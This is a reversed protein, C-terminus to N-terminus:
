FVQSDFALGIPFTLSKGKASITVAPVPDGSATLQTPKFEVITHGESNSVWLNGAPDVAVENPGKLSPPTKLDSTIQVAPTGGSKLETSKYETLTNMTFSTVWLDGAATFAMGDLPAATVTVAPTKKGSSALQAPTYETITGTNASWLDGSADFALAEPQLKGNSTVDIAPKVNGGATPLPFSTVTDPTESGVYLTSGNTGAGAQPAVAVGAAAVALAGAGLVTAMALGLRVTRGPVPKQSNSRMTTM